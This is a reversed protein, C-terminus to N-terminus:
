YKTSRVIFAFAPQLHNIRKHRALPVDIQGGENLSKKVLWRNSYIKAM